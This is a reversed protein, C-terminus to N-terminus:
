RKCDKDRDTRLGGILTSVFVCRKMQEDSGVQLTIRGLQGNTNGHYNFQVGRVDYNEGSFRKRFTTKDGLQIKDDLSRWQLNDWVAQDADKTTSAPHIAWEVIDNRNRFSFQWTVKEKTANSKAQNLARYVENQATSLHQRNIFNIWSPAAIASLIGVIAIIVLLEIMTFGQNKTAFFAKIM